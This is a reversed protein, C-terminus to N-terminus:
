FRVQARTTFVNRLQEETADMVMDYALTIALASVPVFLLSTEAILRQDDQTSLDPDLAEIRMAVGLFPLFRLVTGFYGALQGLRPGGAAGARRAFAIEGYVETRPLQLEFDAGLRWRAVDDSPVGEVDDTTTVEGPEPVSDRDSDIWTTTPAVEPTGPVFEKGVQASVGFDIRMTDIGLRLVLDKAGDPDRGPLLDSGIPNGNIVAMQVSYISSKARIRLGLDREGPFFTRTLFSPELFPNDSSSLLTEFGFPIKFLGLTFDVDLGSFPFLLTAEAEKLSVGSSSADTELSLHAFRSGEWRVKLRGRRILFRDLNNPEGSEDLGEGSDSHAEYQAQLYGSFRLGRALETGQEQAQGALPLIGLLVSYLAVRM